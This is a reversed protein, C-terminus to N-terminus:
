PAPTLTPTPTPTPDPPPTEIGKPMRGLVRLPDIRAIESAPLKMKTAIKSQLAFTATEAPSFLGYHLHCGSANGSNGEWGIFQGATVHDGVKVAIDNLHAYLSRYGNGDDVVITIPLSYWLKKADNRAKYAALDGLWGLEDDYHRGAALVVGDHAARVRDGCFTAIDLGDHFLGGGVVLTGFPSPGYPQTIRGVRLPWAYGTLTSPDPAASGPGPVVPLGGAGIEARAHAPAAVARAPAVAESAAPDASAASADPAAASRAPSGVAAAIRADGGSGIDIVGLLFAGLLAAVSVAAAIPWAAATRGRTGGTRAGPWAAPADRHHLPRAQDRRGRRESPPALTPGVEALDTRPAGDDHV